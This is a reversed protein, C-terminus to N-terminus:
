KKKNKIINKTRNYTFVCGCGLVLISLILPIAKQHLNMNESYNLAKDNNESYITVNFKGSWDNAVISITKELIDSDQLKTPYLNLSDIESAIKDIINEKNKLLTPWLMNSEYESNIFDYLFYNSSPNIPSFYNNDLTTTNVLNFSKYKGAFNATVQESTTGKDLKNNSFLLNFSINSNTGFQDAGVYAINNSDLSITLSTTGSLKTGINAFTSIPLSTLSNNQLEVNSVLAYSANPDDKVNETPISLDYLWPNIFIASLLQEPSNNFDTDSSLLSALNLTSIKALRNETISKGDESILLVPENISTLQLSTTISKAIPETIFLQKFTISQIKGDTTTRFLKPFYTGIGKNINKPFFDQASNSYTPAFYKKLLRFDNAELDPASLGGCYANSSDFSNMRIKTSTQTHNSPLCSLPILGITGITLLSIIKRIKM